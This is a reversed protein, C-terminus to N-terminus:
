AEGALTDADFVRRLWEPVLASTLVWSQVAARMAAVDLSPESGPLRAPSDGVADVIAVAESLELGRATLRRLRQERTPTPM